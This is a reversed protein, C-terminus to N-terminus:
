HLQFLEGTGFHNLGTLRGIFIHSFIGTDCAIIISSVMELVRSVYAKCICSFYIVLPIDVSWYSQIFLCFDNMTLIPFIM